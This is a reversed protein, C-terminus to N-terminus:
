LAAQRLNVCTKLGPTPLFLTMMKLSSNLCLSKKFAMEFERMSREQQNMKLKFRCIREYVRTTEELVM